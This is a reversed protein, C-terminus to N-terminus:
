YIRTLKPGSCWFIFTLPEYFASLGAIRPIGEYLGLLRSVKRLGPKSAIRPILRQGEVCIKEFRRGLIENMEALSFERLHYPNKPPEPINRLQHRRVNPTSLCMVGDAKLVRALEAVFSEFDYIHEITEFSVVVDVCHDSLPIRTGDAVLFHIDDRGYRSLAFEIAASSIDIGLVRKAGRHALLRSGYGTGCAVDLVIKGIVCRAAHVYRQWHDFYLATPTEGEIVREGTWSLIGPEDLVAKERQQKVVGAVQSNKAM